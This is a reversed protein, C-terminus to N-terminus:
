SSTNQKELYSAYCVALYDKKEQESWSPDWHFLHSPSFTTGSAADYGTYHRYVADVEQFSAAELDYTYSRVWGSVSDSGSTEYYSVNFVPTGDLESFGTGTCGSAWQGSCSLIFDIVTQSQQSLADYTMTEPQSQGCSCLAAAGLILATLLPLIRRGIM